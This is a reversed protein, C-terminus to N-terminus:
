FPEARAIVAKYVGVGEVSYQFRTGAPETGCFYRNRDLESM